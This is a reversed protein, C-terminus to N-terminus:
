DGEFLFRLNEHVQQIAGAMGHFGWQVWKFHLQEDGKDRCRGDGLTKLVVAESITKLKLFLWFDFLTFEPSYLLLPVTKIVM